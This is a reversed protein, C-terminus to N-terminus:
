QPWEQRRLDPWLATISDKLFIPLPRALRDAFGLINEVWKREPKHQAAGVGSQAGIIIWDAWLMTKVDIETLMPEISVFLRFGCMRRMKEMPRWTAEAREATDVSAGIWLNEIYDGGGLYRVPRDEAAGYLVTFVIQPWKTLMYFTHQPCSEIVDLVQDLYDRMMWPGFFDTM